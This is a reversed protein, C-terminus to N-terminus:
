VLIREALEPPCGSALLDCATHLDADSLAIREAVEPSCGAQVLVLERWEVVQQQVDSRPSPGQPAASRSAAM